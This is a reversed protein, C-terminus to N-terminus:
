HYGNTYDDGQNSNLKYKQSTTITLLMYIISFEYYRAAPDRGAAMTEYIACSFKM